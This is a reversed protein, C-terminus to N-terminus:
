PLNFNEKFESTLSVDKIHGSTSITGKSLIYVYSCKEITNLKHSILISTKQSALLNLSDQIESDTKADLASTAEDFIFIDSNKYLARAIALRQRQGGSIKKGREGIKYNLGQPHENIFDCHSNKICYDLFELNLSKGYLINEQINNNFAGSSQNVYSFHGRLSNLDIKNIDINNIKIIGSSAKKFGFMLSIISSKGSGTKGVLAISDGKHFKFNINHLITKKGIKLSVNIFEIVDIPNNIHILGQSEQKLKLINQIRFIHTDLINLTLSTRTIIKIPAYLMMVATLFAFFEGPTMDNEIVLLGGWFIVSAAALSTFVEMIPSSSEQYRALKLQFNQYKKLAGRFLHSEYNTNNYMKVLDINNFSEGIRDSLESIMKESNLTHSKVKKGLVKIPFYILSGFLISIISLKWNLYLILTVLAVITLSSVIFGPIDKSIINRIRLVTQIIHSNLDGITKDEIASYEANIACDFMQQRLNTTITVGIYTALYMSLYRFLGRISFLLIVGLPIILLFDRDKALFINDLIPKMSYALVAASSAVIIMSFFTLAIRKKHLALLPLLFKVGYWKPISNKTIKKKM